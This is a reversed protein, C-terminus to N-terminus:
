VTSHLNGERPPDFNVDSLSSRSQQQLLSTLVFPTSIARFKMRVGRKAKKLIKGNKNSESLIQHKFNCKGLQPLVHSWTGKLTSSAFHCKKTDVFVGELYLSLNIKWDIHRSSFKSLSSRSKVLLRRAYIKISYGRQTESSIKHCHSPDHVMELCLKSFSM